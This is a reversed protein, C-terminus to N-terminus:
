KKELEGILTRYDPRSRIADFDKHEKLDAIRTPNQYHGAARAKQLLEIARSGYRDALKARGDSDLRPDIAALGAALSFIGAYRHLDPPQARGEALYADSEATATTHDKLRLHAFPRYLRMNIHNQGESIALVRRWDKAAEDHRNLRGLAYARGMLCNFLAMRVTVDRDDKELISDLLRISKEALGLAEKPSRMRVQMALNDYAAALETKYIAINPHDRYIEEKIALSEKFAQEAKENQGDKAYLLGLNNITGALRRRHEVVEPHERLLQRCAAIGRKNAAEADALRGQAMYVLSVNQDFRARTKLIEDKDAVDAPLRDLRKTGALYAAEAKDLKDSQRYILILDSHSKAMEYPISRKDSPVSEVGEFLTIVKEFTTEAESFRRISWFLTGLGRYALAREVLVTRDDPSEGALTDLLTVADRFDSEAGDYQGLFFQIEGVRRHARAVETRLRSDQGRERLFDRYFGLADRLLSKRITEMQPVHALQVEGVQTLMTDVADLARKFDAEAARKHRDADNRERMAWSALSLSGISSVVLLAAFAGATLLAKRNKRTFKRLRYSASVPCAQVPEDALYRQVDAALGNATEYRRDRDKELAKMVIWDLEGRILGSLKRADVGRDAAISALEDSTGLRTSPRPPEEERVLRLLEWLATEQTRKRCLPTTGTLLEYLLVGLSYVDSRTDIDLQNLEAQEPSMYEPTGVVAGLGTVLSQETLPQGAAKAVGFDIVKPVPREDYLAVLVNSPKIDRHIVGKQHAHQVAQCVAVFLELRERPTLRREDCFKTIPVGKVLEMVLYPRGVPTAGGDLVKAINPHDMLALAQREAEFRALVPRSDMGAKIVKLAVLRKVPETQQALWVTGMGGEGIVEVLTYPGVSRMDPLDGARDGPPSGTQTDATDTPTPPSPRGPFGGDGVHCSLLREIRVRLAVNDGCVWELFADREVGDSIELAETFITEETM